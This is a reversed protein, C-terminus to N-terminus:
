ERQVLSEVELIWYYSDALFAIHAALGDIYLSCADHLKKLGSLGKM